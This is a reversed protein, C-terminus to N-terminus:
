APGAVLLLECFMWAAFGVITLLATWRRPVIAYSPIAVIAIAAVVSVYGPVVGAEGTWSRMGPVLFFLPALVTSVVYRIAVNPGAARPFSSLSTWAGVIGAVIVIASGPVVIRLRQPIGMRAKRATDAWGITQQFAPDCSILSLDM